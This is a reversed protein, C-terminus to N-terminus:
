PVPKREYAAIGVTALSKEFVTVDIIKYSPSYMNRVYQCVDLSVLSLWQALLVKYLLM